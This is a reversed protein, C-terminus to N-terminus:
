AYRRRQRYVTRRISGDGHAALLIIPDERYINELVTSKWDLECFSVYPTGNVSYLAHGDHVGYTRIQKPQVWMIEYPVSHIDRFKSCGENDYEVIRITAGTIFVALNRTTTHIADCVYRVVDNRSDSLVALRVNKVRNM